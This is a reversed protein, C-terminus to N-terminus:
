LKKLIKQESDIKNGIHTIEKDLLILKENLLEIIKPDEVEELLENILESKGIIRDINQNLFSLTELVLSSKEKKDEQLM